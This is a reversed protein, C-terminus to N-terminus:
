GTAEQDADEFTWNCGKGIGLLERVLPADAIYCTAVGKRKGYVMCKGRVVPGLGCPQEECCKGCRTCPNTM